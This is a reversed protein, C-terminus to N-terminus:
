SEDDAGEDSVVGVAILGARVEILLGRLEDLVGDPLANANGTNIARQYQNLNGAIRALKGWAERNIAPVVTPLQHVAACRLWEGRKMKHAVRGADVQKLEADNLRVSVCHERKEDPAMPERGRKSKKGIDVGM